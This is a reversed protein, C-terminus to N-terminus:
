RSTLESTRAAAASARPRPRKSILSSTRNARILAIWVSKDFATLVAASLERVPRACYDRPDVLISQKSPVSGTHLAAAPFMTLSKLSIPCYKMTGPKVVTVMRPLAMLRPLRIKRTLEQGIFINELVSLSPYIELSQPLMRIGRSISDNASRFTIRRDRVWIEGSDPMLYGCLINMLTTKGSGNPGIVGLLEGPFLNLTVRDLAVLDDFTKSINKLRITPSM